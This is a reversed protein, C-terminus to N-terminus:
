NEENNIPQYFFERKKRAQLNLMEPGGTEETCGSKRVTREVGRTVALM